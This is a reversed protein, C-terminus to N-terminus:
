KGVCFRKVTEVVAKIDLPKKLVAKAGIKMAASEINADATMLAIPISALRNDNEQEKRFQYGDMVPMMLDLLIVAPLQLAGRLFDLAEKGNNALEVSIGENELIRKLFSAFELSDEVILVYRPKSSADNTPTRIM